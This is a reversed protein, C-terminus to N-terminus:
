VGTARATEVEARRHAVKEFAARLTEEERRLRELEAQHQEAAEQRLRRAELLQAAEAAEARATEIKVRERVLEEATQRRRVAELRFRAEDDALRRAEKEAAVRTKQEAAVAEADEAIRREAEEYAQKRLQEEEDRRAAAEARLKAESEIRRGIEKEADKRAAITGIIQSELEKLKTRVESEDVLLQQPDKTSAPETAVTPSVSVTTTKPKPGAPQPQSATVSEVRAQSQTAAPPKVAAPKTLGESAASNPLSSNGLQALVENATSRVTADADFLAAILHPTARQSGAEALIRAAAARKEASEGARLDRVAQDFDKSATFERASQETEPALRKEDTGPQVADSRLENSTTKKDPRDETEMKVDEDAAQLPPMAEASNRAVLNESVTEEDEQHGSIFARM